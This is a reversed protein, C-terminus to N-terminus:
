LVSIDARDDQDLCLNDIMSRRGSEEIPLPKYIPRPGIKTNSIKGLGGNNKQLLLSRGNFGRLKKVSVERLVMFIYKSTIGSNTIDGENGFGNRIEDNTAVEWVRWIIWEARSFDTWGNYVDELLGELSDVQKPIESVKFNVASISWPAYRKLKEVDGAEIFEDMRPRVKKEHHTM